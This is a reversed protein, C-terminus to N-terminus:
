NYNDCKQMAYEAVIKGVNAGTYKSFVTFPGINVEGIVSKGGSVLLDIGAYDVGLAKASALVMKIQEDNLETKEATGGSSINSTINLRNTRKVAEVIEDGVVTCRLSAFGRTDDNFYPEILMPEYTFSSLIGLGRKITVSKKKNSIAV